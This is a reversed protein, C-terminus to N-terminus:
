EDEQEGARRRSEITQEGLDPLQHRRNAAPLGCMCTGPLDPDEQYPHYAVRATRAKV